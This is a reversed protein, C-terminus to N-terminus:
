RGPHRPSKLSRELWALSGEFDVVGQGFIDPPLHTGDAQTKRAGQYLAAMVTRARLRREEPTTCPKGRLHDYAAMLKAIVGTVIPAAMSTGTM